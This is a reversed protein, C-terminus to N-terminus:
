SRGQRTQRWTTQLIRPVLDLCAGIVRQEGPLVRGAVDYVTQQLTLAHTQQDSRQQDPQQHQCNRRLTSSSRGHREAAGIVRAARYGDLHLRSYGGRVRVLRAVGSRSWVVVAYCRDRIFVWRGRHTRRGSGLDAMGALMFAAGASRATGDTRDHVRHQDHRCGNEGGRHEGGHHGADIREGSVPGVAGRSENEGLQRARQTRQCAPGRWTRDRGQQAHPMPAGLSQRSSMMTWESEM